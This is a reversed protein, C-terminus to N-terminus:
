AFAARILVFLGVQLDCLLSQLLLGTGTQKRQCGGSRHHIFFEAFHRYHVSSM